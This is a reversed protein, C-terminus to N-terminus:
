RESEAAAGASATAESPGVAATLSHFLSGAIVGVVLTTVGITFPVPAVLESRLLFFLAAMLAGMKFILIAAGGLQSKQNGSLLRGVIFRLVYWNALGLIVGVGTSLAFHSGEAAYAGAVVCAGLALVYYTLRDLAAKTM